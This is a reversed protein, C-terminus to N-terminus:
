ERHRARHPHNFDRLALAKLAAESAAAGDLTVSDQGLVKAAEGIEERASQLPKLELKGL